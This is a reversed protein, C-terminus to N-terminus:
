ASVAFVREVATETAFTLMLHAFQDSTRSHENAIFADFKAHVDYTLFGFGRAEFRGIAHGSRLVNTRHKIIIDDPLRHGLTYQRHSYVVMVFAEIVSLLAAIDFQGLGINKQYPWRTTTFCKQRLCKGPYQIHGERHRIGRSQCFCPIHTLINLVDNELQKLRGLVIDFASM